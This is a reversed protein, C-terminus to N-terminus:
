PSITGPGPPTEAQREPEVTQRVPRRLAGTLAARMSAPIAGAVLAGLVYVLGAAIMPVALPLRWSLWMALLALALGPLLRLLYGLPLRAMSVRRLRLQAFLLGSAETIILALGTAVAGLVPILAANLAVNVALNVASLGTLFRQQRAAVLADTLLLSLFGVAVAVLFLQLVPAARDTFEESVVVTVVRSALPPGLVAVPAAFLLLFRYGRDVAARFRAPDTAYGENITSLASRSFVQPLLSLTFALQLAVGYAAMEAPDALVSLLLGDVRWYLVGIILILSIPLSERVLRLTARVDFVPRIPVLRRAGIGTIAVRLLPPLAQVACMALLGADALVVFGAAALALVRSALEAVAVAGYRVHMNFVPDFCTALTTFVLGSAVILVALQTTPEGAYTVLGMVAALAGLPVAYVASLALNLGVLRPLSGEGSTVRRVIITGIGLETFTEFLGVFVVATTLVGYGHEGLYRTAVALTILALPLSLVRSALQVAVGRAIAM